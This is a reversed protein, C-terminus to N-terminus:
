PCLGGRPNNVARECSGMAVLEACSRGEICEGQADDIEPYVPGTCAKPPVYTCDISSGSFGPCCGQLRSVASECVFEDQRIGCALTLWVLLSVTFATRWRARRKPITMALTRVIM